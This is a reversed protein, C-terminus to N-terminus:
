TPLYRFLASFKTLYYWFLCEIKEEVCKCLIMWFKFFILSWKLKEYVTACNSPRDSGFDSIRPEFGAMPLM